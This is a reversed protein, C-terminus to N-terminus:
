WSLSKFFQVTLSVSDNAYLNRNEITNGVNSTIKTIFFIRKKYVFRRTTRWYDVCKVICKHSNILATTKVRLESMRYLGEM